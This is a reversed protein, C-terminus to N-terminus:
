EIAAANKYAEVQRERQISGSQAAGPGIASSNVPVDTVDAPLRDVIYKELGIGGNEAIHQGMFSDFMGGFTDSDDGAFMDKAMSQRMTKLMMAVFVSEFERAASAADNVNRGSLDSGVQLRSPQVSGPTLTDMAATPLVTNTLM